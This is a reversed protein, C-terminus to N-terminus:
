DGMALMWRDMTVSQDLARVLQEINDGKHQASRIADVLLKAHDPALRTDSYPDLWVGTKSSLLVLEQDLQSWDDDSLQVIPSRRRDDLWAFHM